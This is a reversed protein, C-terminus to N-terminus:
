RKPGFEDDLDDDLDDDNVRVQRLVLCGECAFGGPVAKVESVSKQEGCNVCVRKEIEM